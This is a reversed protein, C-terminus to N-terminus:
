ALWYIASVFRMFTELDPSAANKQFRVEALMSDISPVYPVEVSDYGDYNPAADAPAAHASQPLTAQVTEAVIEPTTSQTPHSGTTYAESPEYFHKDMSDFGLSSYNDPFGSSYSSALSLNSPRRDLESYHYTAAQSATDTAAFGYSGNATSLSSGKIHAFASTNAGPDYPSNSGASSALSSVSNAYQSHGYLATPSLNYNTALPAPAHARYQPQHYSQAVYNETTYTGLDSAGVYTSQGTYLDQAYDERSHGSAGYADGLSSPPDMRRDHTRLPAYVSPLAGTRGPRALESVPPLRQPHDFAFGGDRRGSFDREPIAPLWSTQISAM